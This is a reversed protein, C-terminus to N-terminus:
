RDALSLVRKYADIASKAIKCRDSIDNSSTSAKSVKSASSRIYRRCLQNCSEALPGLPSHHGMSISRAELIANLATLRICAIPPMAIVFGSFCLASKATWDNQETVM